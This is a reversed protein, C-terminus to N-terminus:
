LRNAIGDGATKERGCRKGCKEMDRIIAFRGVARGKSVRKEGIYNPKAQGKCFTGKGGFFGRLAGQAAKGSM